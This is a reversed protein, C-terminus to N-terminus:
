DGFTCTSGEDRARDEKVLVLCSNYYQYSQCQTESVLFCPLSHTAYTVNQACEAPRVRDIADWMIQAQRRSCMGFTKKLWFGYGSM